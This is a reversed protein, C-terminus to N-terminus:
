VKLAFNFKKAVMIVEATKKPFFNIAVEQGM